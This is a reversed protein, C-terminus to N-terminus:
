SFYVYARIYESFTLNRLDDVAYRTSEDAYALGFHRAVSPHIPVPEGILERTQDFVTSPLQPCDLINLIQNVMFFHLPNAGHNITQFVRSTRFNGELYDGVKVVTTEDTRRAHSLTSNALRDLDVVDGVNLALYKDIIQEFPDGKKLLDLVYSDGYHYVPQVGHRNIPRHSNENRPENAHFPWLFHFHPLPYSIKILRDPLEDLLAEYREYQDGLVPLWEPNHYIFVDAAHIESRISEMQAPITPANNNVYSKLTFRKNFEDSLPLLYRPAVGICSLLSVCKLRGDQAPM